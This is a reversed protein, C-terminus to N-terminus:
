TLPINKIILAIDSSNETSMVEYDNFITNDYILATSSGLFGVPLENDGWLTYYSILNNANDFLIYSDNVWCQFVRIGIYYAFDGSFDTPRRIVITDFFLNKEINLVGNVNFNNCELNTTNTITNQKNLINTSNLDINNQITDLSSQM